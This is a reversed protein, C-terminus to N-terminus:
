PQRWLQKLDPPLQSQVDDIEKSPMRAQVARFVTRSIGDAEVPGVRLHQAVRELFGERDFVEGPEARHLVCPRLLTRLGPAMSNAFDRAQGRTIRQSLICLVASLADAPGVHGPLTRSRDIDDLLRVTNGDLEGPEGEMTESGTEAM